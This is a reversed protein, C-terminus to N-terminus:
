RRPVGKWPKRLPAMQGNLRPHLKMLHFGAPFGTGWQLGRNSLRNIAM